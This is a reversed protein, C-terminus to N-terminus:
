FHNTFIYKGLSNKLKTLKLQSIQQGHYITQRSKMIEENYHQDFQKQFDSVEQRMDALVNKLYSEFETRLSQELEESNM